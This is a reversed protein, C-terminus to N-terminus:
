RQFTGIGIHKRALSIPKNDFIAFNHAIFSASFHKTILKDSKFYLLLYGALFLFIRALRRKGLIKRDSIVSYGILSFRLHTLYYYSVSMIYVTM